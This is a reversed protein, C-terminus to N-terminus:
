DRKEGELATFAKKMPSNSIHDVNEVNLGHVLISEEDMDVTLTGPTLTIANGFLAQLLTKKLPQKISRFGPNIDINKSLVIKVVAFNAKIVEIMLIVFLKLWRWLIKPYLGVSESELFVIDVSYFVILLSAFAGIIIDALNFTSALIMWFGFLLIFLLILGARKEGKM